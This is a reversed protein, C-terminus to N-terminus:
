EIEVDGTTQAETGIQRDSRTLAYCLIEDRQYLSIPLRTSLLFAWCKKL